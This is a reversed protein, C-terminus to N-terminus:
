TSMCSLGASVPLSMVDDACLKSEPECPPLWSGMTVMCNVSWPAWANWSTVRSRACRPARRWSSCLKAMTRSPRMMLLGVTSKLCYGLPMLPLLPACIEPLKVVSM